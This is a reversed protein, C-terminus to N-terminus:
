HAGGTFMAWTILVAVGIMMAFAYHYVYGTQLRVVRNTMGVVRAAIGNPGYYDITREDGKKWLFSGIKMAPRVFILDYLEDFYWKNLLFQYLGQHRDALQKPLSPNKIYM